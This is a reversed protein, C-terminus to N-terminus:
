SIEHGDASSGSAQRCGDGREVMARRHDHHVLVYVDSPMPHARTAVHMEAAARAILSLVTHVIRGVLDEDVPNTVVM